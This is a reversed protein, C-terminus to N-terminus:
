GAEGHKEQWARAARFDGFTVTTVPGRLTEAYSIAPIDDLIDPDDADRAAIYRAFPEIVKAAEAVVAALRDREARLARVGIHAPSTRFEPSMPCALIVQGLDTLAEDREAEAKERAAKEAELRALLAAILDIADDFNHGGLDGILGDRERLATRTEAVLEDAAPNAM